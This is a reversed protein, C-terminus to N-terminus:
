IFEKLDYEGFINSIQKLFDLSPEVFFENRLFLSERFKVLFSHLFYNSKKFKSHYKKDNVLAHKNFACQARIQHTFGTEISIEALTYFESILIPKVYTISNFKNTDELIFTKRSIKDRYLFNIYTVPNKIEGELLAIYKKTVIGSSFARSLIRASDINKAFIVLGSTNRDLRHVASPKFSLSKLNKNLLYSNVLSDLSNDGHVLIGRQKNIVLLDEDEYVIMGRVDRAIENEKIKSIKFNFNVNMLSKYLYIEDGQSVRYYFPVKTKNLFIDGNRIHKMIKSKPFRLFKILVSDLRKGDDNKLVNIISYKNANLSIM